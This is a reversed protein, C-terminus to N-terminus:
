CNWVEWTSEKTSGIEEDLFNGNYPGFELGEDVKDKAVVGVINEKEHRLYKFSLFDPLQASSKRQIRDRSGPPPLLSKPQLRPLLNLHKPHLIPNPLKPPVVEKDKLVATKIAQHQQRHTILELPENMNAGLSDRSPEPREVGPAPNAHHAVAPEETLASAALHAPGPSSFHSRSTPQLRSLQQQQQQQQHQQQQPHQNNSAFHNTSQLLINPSPLVSGSGSLSLSILILHNASLM